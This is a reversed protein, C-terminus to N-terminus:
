AQVGKWTKNFGQHNLGNRFAEDAHEGVVLAMHEEPMNRVIVVNYRDLFSGDVSEAMAQKLHKLNPELVDGNYADAIIGTSNNVIVYTENNALEPVNIEPVAPYLADILDCTMVIVVGAVLHMILLTASFPVDKMFLVFSIMAILGFFEGKTPRKIKSLLTKFSKM